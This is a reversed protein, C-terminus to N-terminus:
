EVPHLNREIWWLRAARRMRGLWRRASHGATKIRGAPKQMSAAVAFYRVISEYMEPNNPSWKPLQPEPPPFPSGEGMGLYDRALSRNSEEFRALLKCIEEDAFMSYKEAGGEAKGCAIAAQGARQLMTRDMGPMANIIRKIELLNNSLSLNVNGPHAFGADWRLGIAKTFDKLVDGDEFRDRDYIRVDIADRGFHAAIRELVAYYDLSPWNAEQSIIEDFSLTAYRTSAAKVAQAWNSNLYQDQRRLYLIIRVDFGRVESERKLRGWLDQGDRMTVEFIGEDSLVVSSYRRFKASLYDMCRRWAQRDSESLAGGRERWAIGDLFFGNREYGVNGPQRYPMRPYCYGLRALREVNRVCFNQIATTGTKPMGIHLYLTSMEDGGEGNTIRERLIVDRAIAYYM